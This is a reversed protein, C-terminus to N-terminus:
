PQKPKWDDDIIDKDRAEIVNRQIALKNQQEITDILKQHMDLIRTSQEKQYM